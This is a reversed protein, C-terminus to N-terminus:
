LGGARYLLRPEDAMNFEERLWVRLRDDDEYRYGCLEFEGDYADWVILHGGGQERILQEYRGRLVSPDVDEGHMVAIAQLTPEIGAASVMSLYEEGVHKIFEEEAPHKATPEGEDPADVDLEELVAIDPDNESESWRWIVVADQDPAYAVGIREENSEGVQWYSRLGGETGGGEFHKYIVVAEDVGYKALLEIAPNTIHISGGERRGFRRTLAVWSDADDSMSGFGDADRETLIRAMAGWLEEADFRKGANERIWPRLREAYEGNSEDPQREPARKLLKEARRQLERRRRRGERGDSM